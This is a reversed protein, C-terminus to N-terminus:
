DLRVTGYFCIGVLDNENSIIKETLTAIACKIASHLPIEGQANKRYM